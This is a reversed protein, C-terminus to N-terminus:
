AKIHPLLETRTPMRVGFDYEVEETGSVFPGPLPDVIEFHQSAVDAIRRAADHGLLDIAKAPICEFTPFPRNGFAAKLTLLNGLARPSVQGSILSPSIKAIANCDVLYNTPSGLGRFWPANDYVTLEVGSEVYRVINRIFNSRRFFRDYDFRDDVIGLALGFQAYEACKFCNYCWRQDPSAAVCMVIRTFADPYRETLMRYSTFTTFLLNINTLTVDAGLVRRYHTGQTALMEPRSKGYRFWHRGHERRRFPYATWPLGPTCISVGWWLMAPLLGVTYLELHPRARLKSKHHQAVYDTWGLQTAVGLHERAPALMLAEQRHELRKAEGAGPRQPVVLQLLVVDDRGYVESLLCTALTSDKGGGFFVGASRRPREPAHGSAWSSYSAVDAVPTVTVREADHFSRWFDISSRPIPEPFVLDIPIRYSAFVKLQLGLFMEYFLFPSFRALDIGDYRFSFTNEYQFPNPESQSWRFIVTEGSISPPEVEVRM